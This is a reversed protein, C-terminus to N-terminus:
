VRLVSGTLAEYAEFYRDRTAQVVAEPLAPPRQDGSRDWGSEPSTLWVRVYQKDYSPSGQGEVWKDAPWFRSSDPTLVEDALVLQGDEDVGFEFKTDAVIIGRAAAIEAARSYVELSTDRLAAAAEGGVLSELQAFSINEDHEGLEAKAAPTFIPEALKSAETLGAPLEVGCVSGRQRYEVLGSGTLYGRVVCEAPYMRLRRCVMARGAVEEPVPVDLLHNAVALQELWWKSLATLVVGKDPIPTDLVYDFASIRDTAVVLLQSPDSENLYLERVKGGGVHRWGTIQAAM